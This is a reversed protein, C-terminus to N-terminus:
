AHLREEGDGLNEVCRQCVGQGRVLEPVIHWCRPCKEGPCKEVAVAIGMDDLELGAPLDGASHMQIASSLMVFRLEDGLEALRREAGASAYLHVRAELASGIMGARREREIVRNVEDRARAMWDWYQLEREDGADADLQSKWQGAHVSKFEAGEGRYHQWVEEATFVLVPAMWMTLSELIHHLAAQASRRARGERSCTYLRDKIIDLYFSGLDVACFHHMRQCALHFQYDNYATVIEQQVQACRKVAWRDIRVWDDPKPADQPPDFDSLNGLLFRATNRIRRYSDVVHRLVEDSLVMENRYDTSAIWLRLVDAGYKDIIEQPAISNGLSKSMKHGQADVVFGHTLVQRYPADGRLAVGTLLSSQFWGRHQDSGELYLDAVKVDHRPLVTEHTTGSDFWVDLVHGLPRYDGADDGLLALTEPQYFADVGGCREIREAIQPILEGTRPHVEGTRRHVFLPLPVGWTRQRSICWDPREAVMGNLRGRGWAPIWQVTGIQELAKTRLEEHEMSIFWQTTARYIVPERHRWCYPYSHGHRVNALLAGAGETLAIIPENAALVDLGDYVMGEASFVGDEGVVTDVPLDHRRGMEFDDLGHAPASHVLGTGVETTVHEGTLVPVERDLFPHSVKLRVLREGPVSGLVQEARRGYRALASEALAEALVLLDGRDDRILQYTLEPHVAIARNSPLTWPTTTWIVLGAREAGDLADAAVGFREAIEAAGAFFAVDIAPSTHNHYEIEAEALTSRCHTCWYVPKLGPVIYGRNWLAGFTRVIGAEVRPEMTAYPHEWDANVGLRIFDDMQLQMQEAAYERCSRRFAEPTVGEGVKGIREEVKLEIPLGHCDWGPIFHADFGSLSRSRVAMDKLSKNIAHGLHIAGNAYPPGDHFIFKPFHRRQARLSGYLNHRKWLALIDPERVPLQAKMPFATRPLNLTAKHQGAQPKDSM